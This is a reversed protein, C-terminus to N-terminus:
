TTIESAGDYNSWTSSRRTEDKEGKAFCERLGREISVSSEWGCNRLPATQACSYVVDGERSPVYDFEVSPHHELIFNKIKNLSITKGTGVDYRRGHFNEEFNMAFINASVIDSVHIMDRSQEGDGTIYPKSGARLARIWNAIVTAYANDCPQDASYVNFYRLSVTDIGYLGSYLECESESMLKQVAYPSVPGNGNGYIAASSSFIVRKAGVNKAFELVKSTGYVNNSLTESPNEVSYQVQPIAALHFIYEPKFSIHHHLDRRVDQGQPVKLDIGRVEHGSEKLALSLHSGIYGRNGTVFCRAM